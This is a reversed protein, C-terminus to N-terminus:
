RKDLSYDNNYDLFKRHKVSALHENGYECCAEMLGIRLSIM